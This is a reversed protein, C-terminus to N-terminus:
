GFYLAAVKLGIAAGACWVCGFLAAVGMGVGARNAFNSFSGGGNLASEASASLMHTGSFGASNTVTATMFLLAILLVTTTRKGELM